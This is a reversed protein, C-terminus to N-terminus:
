DLEYPTPCTVSCRAEHAVFNWNSYFGHVDTQLPRLVNSVCEGNEWNSGATPTCAGHSTKKLTFGMGDAGFDFHHNKRLYHETRHVDQYRCELTKNDDKLSAGDFMMTRQSGLSNEGDPGYPQYYTDWGANNRGTRYAPDNDVTSPDPCEVVQTSLTANVDGPPTWAPEGDDGKPGPAGPKDGPDPAGAGNDDGPIPSRTAIDLPLELGNFLLRATEIRGDNGAMLAAADIPQNGTAYPQNAVSGDRQVRWRDSQPWTPPTQPKPAYYYQAARNKLEIYCTYYEIASLDFGSLFTSTLSLDESHERRMAGKLSVTQSSARTWIRSSPVGGVSAGPHYISCSVRFGEVGDTVNSITVPVNFTLSLAGAEATIVDPSPKDKNKQSGYFVQNDAPPAPLASPRQWVSYGDIDMSARSKDGLKFVAIRNESTRVCIQTAKALSSLNIRSARLDDMNAACAQYLKKDGQLLGLGAGNLPELLLGDGKGGKVLRIDASARDGSEDTDFDFFGNSAINITQTSRTKLTQASAPTIIFTFGVAIAAWSLAICRFIAM